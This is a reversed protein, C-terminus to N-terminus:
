IQAKFEELTDDFGDKIVIEGKALGSIGGGTPRDEKDKESSPGTPYDGKSMLFEIFDIVQKRINEPLTSLQIYPGNTAM